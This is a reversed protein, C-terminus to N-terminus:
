RARSPASPSSRDPSAPPWRGRRRRGADPFRRVRHQRSGLLGTISITPYYLARAAGINANAAVLNQEAALIDPRRALLTSPLDAPIAPAALEDITKGRPIPGPNRGLLISILNEQAAIQQGIAPIAALAQQYQSQIQSVETM